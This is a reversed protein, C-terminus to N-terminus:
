DKDQRIKDAKLKSVTRMSGIKDQREVEYGGRGNIIRQNRRRNM